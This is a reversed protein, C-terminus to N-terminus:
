SSVTDASSPTSHTSTVRTAPEVASIQDVLGWELATEADVTRDLLLWELIRRSGIRRTISWTGGVGPILGMTVEPLRFRTDPDAVIRGAFAALEIGAGVCAGHVHATTRHAIAALHSAPGAAMRIAHATPPDAVSGFEAPDGGACFSSGEARWVVLRDEDACGALAFAAALEDRSQRDLLNHLRPRTLTITIETEDAECRVRPATDNRVRQGRSELWAAHEPGAQLMAYALSELILGDALSGSASRIVQLATTAALPRDLIAQALADVDGVVDALDGGAAVTVVPLPALRDLVQRWRAPDDSPTAELIVVPANVAAGIEFRLDISDTAAVADGLSWHPVGRM